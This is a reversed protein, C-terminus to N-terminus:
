RKEVLIINDSQDQLSFQRQTVNNIWELYNNQQKLSLNKIACEPKYCEPAKSKIVRLSQPDIFDPYDQKTDNVYYMYDDISVVRKAKGSTEDFVPLLESSPPLVRQVYVEELLLMEQTEKKASVTNISPSPIELSPMQIQPTSISTGPVSIVSSSNGMSNRCVCFLILLLLIIVIIEFLRYRSSWSYFWWEEEEAYSDQLRTNKDGVHYHRSYKNGFQAM